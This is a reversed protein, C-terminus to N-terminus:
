CHVFQLIGCNPLNGLSCVAPAAAFANETTNDRAVSHSVTRCWMPIVGCLVDCCPAACCVAQCLVGCCSVICCQVACSLAHCQVLCCLVHCCLKFSVCSLVVGYCLVGCCLVGVVVCHLVVGRCGVGCCVVAYWLMGCGAGVRLGAVVACCPIGAWVGCGM